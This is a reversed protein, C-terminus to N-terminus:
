LFLSSLIEIWIYSLIDLFDHLMEASTWNLISAYQEALLSHRHQQVIGFCLLALICYSKKKCLFWALVRYPM